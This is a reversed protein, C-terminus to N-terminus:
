TDGYIHHYEDALRKVSKGIRNKLATNYAKELTDKLPKGNFFVSECRSAHVADMQAVYVSGKKIVLEYNMLDM